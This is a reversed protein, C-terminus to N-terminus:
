VQNRRVAHERIAALDDFAVAPYSKGTILCFVNDGDDGYPVGWMSTEGVRVDLELGTVDARKDILQTVFLEAYRRAHDIDRTGGILRTGTPPEEPQLVARQQTMVQGPDGHYSPRATFFATVYAHTLDSVSSLAEAQEPTATAAGVDIELQWVPLYLRSGEFVRLPRAFRVPTSATDGGPVHALRCDHCFFVADYRLGDLPAGCSPCTLPLLRTGM